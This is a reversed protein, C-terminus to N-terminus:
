VEKLKIMKLVEINPSAYISMRKGFEVSGGVELRVNGNAGGKDVYIIKGPPLVSGTAYCDNSRVYEDVGADPEIEIKDGLKYWGVPLEGLPTNRYVEEDDEDDVFERGPWQDAGLEQTLRKKFGDMVERLGFVDERMQLAGELLMMLFDANETLKRQLFEALRPIRDSFDSMAQEIKGAKLAVAFILSTHGVSLEQAPNERVWEVLDEYLMAARGQLVMQAMNILSDPPFHIMMGKVGQNNYNLPSKIERVVGNRSPVSGGNKALDDEPNKM